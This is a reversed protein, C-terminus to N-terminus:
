HIAPNFTYNIKSSFKANEIKVIRFTYDSYTKKHIFEKYVKQFLKEQSKQSAIKGNLLLIPNLTLTYDFSETRNGRVKTTAKITIDAIYIEPQM